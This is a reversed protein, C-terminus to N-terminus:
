GQTHHSWVPCAAASPALQWPEGSASPKTSDSFWLPEASGHVTPLGALWGGLLTSCPHFEFINQSHINTSEHCKRRKVPQQLDGARETSYQVTIYRLPIYHLSPTTVVMQSGALPQQAGVGGTVRSQVETLYVGTCPHLWLGSSYHQGTSGLALLGTQATRRCDNCSPLSSPPAITPTCCKGGRWGCVQWTYVLWPIPSGCLQVVGFFVAQLSSLTITYCGTAASGTQSREM